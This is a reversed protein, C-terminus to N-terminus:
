LDTETRSLIPNGTTRLESSSVRVQASHKQLNLIPIRVSFKMFESGDPIRYQRIQTCSSLVHLFARPRDVSHSVRDASLVARGARSERAPISTRYPRQTARVASIHYLVYVAWVYRISLYLQLQLKNCTCYTNGVLLMDLFYALRNGELVDLQFSLNRYNSFEPFEAVEPSM